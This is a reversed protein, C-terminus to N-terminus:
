RRSPEVILAVPRPERDRFSLVAVCALAILVLLVQSMNEVPTADPALTVTVVALLALFASAAGIPTRTFSQWGEPARSPKMCSIDSGSGRAKLFLHASHGM